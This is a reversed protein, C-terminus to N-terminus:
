SATRTVHYANRTLRWSQRNDGAEQATCWALDPLPRLRGFELISDVQSDKNPLVRRNSYNSVESKLEFMTLGNSQAVM